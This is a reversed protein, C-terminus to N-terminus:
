IITSNDSSNMKTRLDKFSKNFPLPCANNKMTTSYYNISYSERKPLM